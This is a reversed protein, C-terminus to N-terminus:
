YALVVQYRRKFDLRFCCLYRTAKTYILVDQGPQVNAGVQVILKAYKKLQSKTM